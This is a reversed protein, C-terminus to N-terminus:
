IVVEVRRRVGRGGDARGVIAEGNGHVEGGDLVFSEDAATGRDVCGRQVDFRAAAAAQHRLSAGPRRTQSVSFLSVDRGHRILAETLRSVVRETGGYPSPPVAGFQRCGISM